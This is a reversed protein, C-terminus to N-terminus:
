VEYEHSQPKKADFEEARSIYHTHLLEEAKESLPATLFEAYVQKIQPNDHSNRLKAQADIKYLSAARTNRVGDSPPASSRPQGGGYQCGGPCAMVEIFTWPSNGAKVQEMIARANDLGSIVAIRIEGAGPISVAAEKVGEMGRVPTLQWLAAPPQEGTV